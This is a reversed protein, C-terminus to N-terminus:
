KSDRIGFHLALSLKCHWIWHYPYTLLLVSVTSNLQTSNLQSWQSSSLSGMLNPFHKAFCTLLPSRSFVGELDTGLALRTWLAVGVWALVEAYFLRSFQNKLQSALTFTPYYFKPWDLVNAKKNNNKNMKRGLIFGEFSYKGM